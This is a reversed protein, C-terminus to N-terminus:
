APANTTAQSLHKEVPVWFNDWERSRETAVLLILTGEEEPVEPIQFAVPFAAQHLLGAPSYHVVTVMEQGIIVRFRSRDNSQSALIEKLTSVSALYCHQM